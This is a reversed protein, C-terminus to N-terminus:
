IVVSLIINELKICQREIKMIGKIKIVSYYKLTYIHWMNQIWEETIPCTNRGAKPRKCVLGSYVYILLHGKM